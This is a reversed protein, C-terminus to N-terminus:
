SDRLIWSSVKSASFIGKYEWCCDLVKSCANTDMADINICMKIFAVSDCVLASQRVHRCGNNWLGMEGKEMLKGRRVFRLRDGKRQVELRSCEIAAWAGFIM